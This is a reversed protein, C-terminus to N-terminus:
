CINLRLKVKQWKMNVKKKNYVNFRKVKKIKGNNFRYYEIKFIM